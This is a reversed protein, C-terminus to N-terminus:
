PPGREMRAVGTEYPMDLEILKAVGPYQSDLNLAKVAGCGRLHSHVTGTRNPLYHWGTGVGTLKRTQATGGAEEKRCMRAEAGNLCRGGNQDLRRLRFYDLGALMRREKWPVNECDSPALQATLGSGKSM